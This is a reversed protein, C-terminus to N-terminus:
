HRHNQVFFLVHQLNGLFPPVTILSLVINKRKKQKPKQKIYLTKNTNKSKESLWNKDKYEVARFAAYGKSKAYVKKSSTRRSIKTSRLIFLNSQAFFDILNLSLSGTDKLLVEM